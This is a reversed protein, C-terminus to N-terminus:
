SVGGRGVATSGDSPGDKVMGVFEPPWTGRSKSGALRKADALLVAVQDAPMGEVLHILEDRNASMGPLRPSEEPSRRVDSPPRALSKLREIESRGLEGRCRRLVEAVSVGEVDLLEALALGVDLDAHPSRGRQALANLVRIVLAEIRQARRILQRSREERREWSRRRGLQSSM